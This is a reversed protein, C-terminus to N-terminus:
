ANGGLCMKLNGVADQMSDSTEGTTSGRDNCESRIRDLWRGTEYVERMCRNEHEARRVLRRLSVSPQSHIDAYPSCGLVAFLLLHISFAM